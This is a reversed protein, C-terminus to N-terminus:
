SKPKEAEIRMLDGFSPGKAVVEERDRLYRATQAPSSHGLLATPDKGQKKAWTAAVARLDHLHADSVGAVACAKDWQLKVTRYDPTKGRRNHLLTLARINGHLTKAGEVVSRLEPTWPVIRKAGTKTQQSRIGEDLLDTRRIKLVDEIREGTRICLDMIVQLRPGAKERVAAYEAISILRTRQTEKHRRIGVVPNSDIGPIQQELAYAFVQRLVSMCRNAMNPTKALDRKLQAVHRGQVQHPAFQVFKRKLVKAAQKYQRITSPKIGRCIEPLAEDILAAMSGQLSLTEHESGYATLAEKLSGGIKTWKGGKVYWSGHKQYVCPPLHSDKRRPRAMDPNCYLNRWDLALILWRM